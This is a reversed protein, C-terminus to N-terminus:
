GHKQVKCGTKFTGAMASTSTVELGHRERSPQMKPTSGLKGVGMYYRCM